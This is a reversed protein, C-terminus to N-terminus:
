RLLSLVTLAKHECLSNKADKGKQDPSPYSRLGRRLTDMLRYSTSSNANAPTKPRSAYQFILRAGYLSRLEVTNPGRCM